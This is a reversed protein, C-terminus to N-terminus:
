KAFGSTEFALVARWEPAGLEAHLGGGVGAKIHLQPGVDDIADFRASLLAEVGTSTGGFLSRLASAGFLEPGI